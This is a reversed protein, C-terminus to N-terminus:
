EETRKLGAPIMVRVPEKVGSNRSVNDIRELLSTTVEYGRSILLIGSVTRVDQVFVMGPLLHALYLEEVVSQRAQSGLMTAFSALLEPDHAGRRGRLTDLATTCALGQSELADYDLVLQLIRAGLPVPAGWRRTALAGGTAPGHAEGGFRIELNALIERVPELRPINALLQETVAPLRKVMGQEALTLPRAEYLKEVTEPALTVTGITCLMAAVEIPWLEELGLLRGLATVHTKARTAQGFALPNQLALIDTLAKISGRLTQELLVREANVLLYQDVAAEVAALLQDTPCPKALFRFIHGTNIATVAADLDAHGTLLLRVSDPSQLRVHALFVAGTMGPMRMDSMVVAFPGDQELRQLGEAGGGALHVEYHRRLNLALGELVQPEDDVCLIRPRQAAARSATIGARAIPDPTV